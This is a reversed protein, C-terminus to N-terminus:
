AVRRRQEAQRAISRAMGQFITAHFPSMAVWYLRGWLGRPAFSATQRVTSGTATPEVEFRLWGEGPLRMEAVLELKRGPEVTVVRWFDLSEGPRLETAHRRGRRLGPGGVVQDMVGRIWWAWDVAYYGVDGGIRSVAWYLDDASATSEVTRDDSFITGGAWAPDGPIAAAPSYGADSWRTVVEAARVRALARSVAERYGMPRHAFLRQAAPDTVVVEHVLSDILPRAVGTPLPTVLGVWLSSLRPSLVPVPLIIRRPLGAEEAYIRMMEEYTLVDAGGVEIVRSDAGEIDLCAVLYHLVDRIAIPQCRTRVWAPTTMVPLVETLYRLMEFSISGSGIVVAARVEVVSVSGSALIEGVRRRSALHPSLEAEPVIGGLYVIRGVGAAEAAERFHQAGAAESEGFDGESGMSHVLYYAADCGELAPSLTDPDLVDGEVVEVEDAWEYRNAKAPSRVITRVQHGADLLQRM